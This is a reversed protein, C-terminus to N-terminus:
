IGDAGAGAERARELVQRHDPNLTLYRERAAEDEIGRARQKLVEVARTYLDRALDFRGTKWFVNGLNNRLRLALVEDAQEATRLGRGASAPSAMSMGIM